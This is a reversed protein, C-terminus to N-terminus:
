QIDELQKRASKWCAAPTKCQGSLKLWSGTILEREIYYQKVPKGKRRCTVSVLRLYKGEYHKRVFLEDEGM